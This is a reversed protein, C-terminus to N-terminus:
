RCTTSAAAFSASALEFRREMMARQGDPFSSLVRQGIPQLFRGYRELASADHRILADKVERLTAPTAIELRGVFVRAVQDPRPQVQLPLIADVTENSVVYFLRTGQEFWSGSWSEVMARAERPYLGHAVLVKQLQAQPSAGEGELDLPNFAIRAASTHWARYAMAGDRNEFLIIDGLADGRSHSV